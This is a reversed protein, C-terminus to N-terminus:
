NKLLRQVGHLVKIVSKLAKFALLEPIFRMLLRKLRFIAISRYARALIKIFPRTLYEDYKRDCFLTTFYLGRYFAKGTKLNDKGYGNEYSIDGWGSLTDPPKFGDEVATNFMPTGPFPIFQYIPSTRFYPNLETLAVIMQVTKKLDDITESPFNTIFSCYVIVPYKNLWKIVELVGATDPRKNLKERIRDSGSEIGVTVRTLGCDLLNSFYADDLDRLTEVDAGYM